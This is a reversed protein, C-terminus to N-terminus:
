FLFPYPMQKQREVVLTYYLWQSTLTTTTTTTTITTTTTTITTTLPRGSVSSDQIIPDHSM